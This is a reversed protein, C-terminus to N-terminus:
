YVLVVANHQDVTNYRLVLVWGLTAPTLKQGSKAFAPPLMRSAPMLRAAATKHM